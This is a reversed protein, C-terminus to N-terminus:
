MSATRIVRSEFSVYGLSGVTRSFRRGCSSQVGCLSRPPRLRDHEKDVLAAHLQRSPERNLHLIRSSLLGTCTSYHTTMHRMGYILMDGKKLEMPIYPGM